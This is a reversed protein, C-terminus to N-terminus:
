AIRSLIECQELFVNNRELQDVMNLTTGRSLLSSPIVHIISFQM